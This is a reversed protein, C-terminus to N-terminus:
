ADEKPFDNQFQLGAEYAERMRRMEGSTTASAEGMQRMLSTFPRFAEKLDGWTFRMRDNFHPSLRLPNGDKTRSAEERLYAVVFDPHSVTTGRQRMLRMATEYPTM